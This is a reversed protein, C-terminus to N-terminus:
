SEGGGGGGGGGGGPASAATAVAAFAGPRMVTFAARMSALLAVKRRLFYDDHSDSAAVSVGERMWMAAGRRFAGVLATGADIRTTQIVPLGWLTTAGALAPAGFLYDGNGTTKSLRVQEFDEPHMLIADPELFALRISTIGNHISDAISENFPLDGIGTTGLIGGFNPSQGDGNLLVDDIREAIGDRLESDILTRMIGADALARRTVPIFHTVEQVPTNRVYYEVASESALDGEDTETAANTRQTQEIWEVSDSNTTGVTILGAVRPTERLLPVSLGSMRDAVVFAGAQNDDEGTILTKFESKSIVETPLMAIAARDVNLVGSGVLGKYGDSAIFRSGATERGKRAEPEAAPEAQKGAWAHAAELKDELGKVSDAHAAYEKHLDDLRQFVAPDTVDVDSSKVESRAGDFATWAADAAKREDRLADFMKRIIPDM